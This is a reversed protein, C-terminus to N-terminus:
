HHKNKGSIAILPYGDNVNKSKHLDSRMSKILETILRDHEEQSFNTNTPGIYIAFARLNRVVESSGILLIKNHAESLKSMGMERNNSLVNSNLANIFELYYQEKLRREDSSISQKKSFYYSLAASVVAIVLSVAPVILQIWADMDIGREEILESIFLSRELYLMAKSDKSSASISFARRGYHFAPEEPSSLRKYIM